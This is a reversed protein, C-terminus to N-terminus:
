TTVEQRLYRRITSSSLGLEKGVRQYALNRSWPSQSKGFELVDREYAAHIAEHMQGRPPRKPKVKKVNFDVAILEPGHALEVEHEHELRERYRTLLTRMQGFHNEAEQLHTLAYGALALEESLTLPQERPVGHEDAVVHKKRLALERARIISARTKKSEEEIEHRLRTRWKAKRKM